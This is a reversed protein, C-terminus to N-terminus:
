GEPRSVFIRRAVDREVRHPAHNDGPMGPTDLVVQVSGDLPDRGGVVLAVNPLLGLEAAHRLLEPDDDPIHQVVSPMDPPLDYLTILDRETITGTSTPIPAGHPDFQPYGLRADIREELYPSIAHELREAEDHVADWPVDLYQHLYLEILRHRRIVRLAESLGKDTLNVGRYRTYDAMGQKRLWQLMSTVSAARIGLAEAIANTNAPAGERQLKYIAKLYDQVARTVM